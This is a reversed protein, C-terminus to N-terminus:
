QYRVAFAATTEVAGKEKGGTLQAKFKFGGDNKVQSSVFEIDNASSNIPSNPTKSNVATLTIQADKATGTSNRLGSSNLAQSNWTVYAVPTNTVDCQNVDKIKLIFDKEEGKKGSVVSGLQILNSSAGDVETEVDCTQATVAGFFNVTGNDAANAIGSGLTALAIASTLYFPKKLLFM